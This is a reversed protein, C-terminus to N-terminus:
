RRCRPDDPSCCAAVTVRELLSKLERRESASLPALLDHEIATAARRAGTLAREGDASLELLYRRRDAPDRPRRVLGRAELEDLVAVLNSTHVHLEQGLRQQAVPGSSALRDLVAFERRSLGAGDLERRMRAGTARALRGLLQSTGAGAHSPATTTTTDAM